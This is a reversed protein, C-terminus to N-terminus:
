RPRPSCASPTASRGGSARTYTSRRRTRCCSSRLARVARAPRYSLDANVDAIYQDMRDRVELPNMGDFGGGSLVVIAGKSLDRPNSRVAPRPTKRARAM